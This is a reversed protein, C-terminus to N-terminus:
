KDWSAVKGTDDTVKVGTVFAENTEVAMLNCSDNKYYLTGERDACLTSICYQQMSKEPVFLEKSEKSASKQ